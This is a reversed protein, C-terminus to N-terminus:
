SQFIPILKPKEIKIESKSGLAIIAMALNIKDFELSYSKSIDEKAISFKCCMSGDGTNHM